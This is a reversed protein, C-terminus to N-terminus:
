RKGKKKGPMRLPALARRMRKREAASMKKKSKPYHTLIPREPVYKHPLHVISHGGVYSEGKRKTVAEGKEAGPRSVAM